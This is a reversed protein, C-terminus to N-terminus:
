LAQRAGKVWMLCNTTCLKPCLGEPRLITGRHLVPRNDMVTAVPNKAVPFVLDSIADTNSYLGVM